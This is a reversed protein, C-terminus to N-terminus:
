IGLMLRGKPRSLRQQRRLWIALGGAGLLLMVSPAYWPDSELRWILLGAAYYGFPLLEYWWFPWLGKFRRYRQVDRRQLELQWIWHVALGCYAVACLWFLWSPVYIAAAGCALWAVLILKDDSPM